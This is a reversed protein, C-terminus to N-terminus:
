FHFINTTENINRTLALRDLVGTYEFHEKWVLEFHGLLGENFNFFDLRCIEVSLFTLGLRGFGSSLFFPSRM